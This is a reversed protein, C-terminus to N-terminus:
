IELIKKRGLINPDQVAGNLIDSTKAHLFLTEEDFM